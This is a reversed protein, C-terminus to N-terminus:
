GAGGRAFRTLAGLRGRLAKYQPDDPRLQAMQHRTRAAEQLAAARRRCECQPRIAPPDVARADQPRYREEFAAILM